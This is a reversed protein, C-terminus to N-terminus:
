HISPHASASQEARSLAITVMSSLMVTYSSAFFGLALAHLVSQTVTDAGSLFISGFEGRGLM